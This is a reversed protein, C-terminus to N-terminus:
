RLRKTYKIEFWVNIMREVFIISTQSVNFLEAVIRPMQTMRLFKSYLLHKHVKDKGEKGGEERVGKREKIKGQLYKLPCTKNNRHKLVSLFIIKGYPACQNPGQTKKTDKIRKSLTSIIVIM